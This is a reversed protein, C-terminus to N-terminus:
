QATTSPHLPTQAGPSAPEAASPTAHETSVSQADSRHVSGPSPVRRQRDGQTPLAPSQGTLSTQAAVAPDQPEQTGGARTDDRRPSPSPQSIPSSQTDPIHREDPPVVYQEREHMRSSSHPSPKWQAPASQARPVRLRVPSGHTVSSLQM